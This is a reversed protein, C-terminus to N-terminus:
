NRRLIYRSQVDLHARYEFSCIEFHHRLFFKELYNKDFRVCHLAGKWNMLYNEPNEKEDEVSEEVFATLVVYGGKNLVSSIIAMYTDVDHSLMHSFVSFLTACNYKEEMQWASNSNGEANYRANRYDIWLFEAFPVKPAVHENLWDISRKSVDVGTYKKLSGFHEILGYLLRAQGCGIDLVRSEKTVGCRQSLLQAHEVASQLYAADDRRSKIGVRVNSPPLPIKM